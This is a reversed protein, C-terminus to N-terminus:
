ARDAPRRVKDCRGSWRARRGALEAGGQGAGGFREHLETRKIVQDPKLNWTLDVLRADIEEGEGVGHKRLENTLQRYNDCRLWASGGKADFAITGNVKLNESIQLSVHVGSDRSENWGLSALAQRFRLFFNPPNRKKDWAVINIRIPQGVEM